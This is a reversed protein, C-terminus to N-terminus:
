SAAALGPLVVLKLVVEYLGGVVLAALTEANATSFTLPRAADDASRMGVRCVSGGDIPDISTCEWLTRKDKDSM